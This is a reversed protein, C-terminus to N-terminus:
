VACAPSAHDNEKKGGRVACIDPASPSALLRRVSSSNFTEASFASLESESLELSESELEDTEETEDSLSLLLSLSESASSSVPGFGGTPGPFSTPGGLGATFFPEPETAQEPRSSDTHKGAPQQYINLKPITTDSGQQQEALDAVTGEGSVLIFTEIKRFYFYIHLRQIQLTEWRALHVLLTEHVAVVDRVRQTCLRAEENSCAPIPVDLYAYLAQQSLAPVCGM